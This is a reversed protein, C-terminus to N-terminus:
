LFHMMVSLHMPCVNTMKMKFYCHQSSPTLGTMSCERLSANNCFMGSDSPLGYNGADKMIFRYEADVIVM